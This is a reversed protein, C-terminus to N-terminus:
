YRKPAHDILLAAFAHMTKGAGRGFIGIGLASGPLNILSPENGQILRSREQMGILVDEQVTQQFM